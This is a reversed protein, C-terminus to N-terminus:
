VHPIIIHKNVGEDDNDEDLNEGDDGEEDQTLKRLEKPLRGKM